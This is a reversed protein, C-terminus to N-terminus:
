AYKIITQRLRKDFDDFSESDSSNLTMDKDFRTKGLHNTLEFLNQTFEDLYEKFRRREIDSNLTLPKTKFLDKLKEANATKLFFRLASESRSTRM